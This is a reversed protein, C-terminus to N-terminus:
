MAYMCSNCVYTCQYMCQYVYIYIYILHRICLTYIRLIGMDRAASNQGQGGLDVAWLDIGSSMAETMLWSAFAAEFEAQTSAAVTNNPARREM